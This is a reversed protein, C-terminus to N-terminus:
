VGMTRTREARNLAHLTSQTEGEATLMVGLTVLEPHTARVTERISNELARYANAERSNRHKGGTGFGYVKLM